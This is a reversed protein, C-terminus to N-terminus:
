VDETREKPCYRAVAYGVGFTDEHSLLESSYDRNRLVGALIAFSRIGCEGVEECLGDDYTLMRELDGKALARVVDAEFEPAAKSMGYPGDAKLRHSLDGSAIFVVRKSTEGLWRSIVEGFKAHTEHDFSSIAIRVIKPGVRLREGADQGEARAIFYLPVLSGHDSRRGPGQTETFSGASLGSAEALTRIEEIAAEDYHAEISPQATRFDKFSSVWNQGTSIYFHNRYMRNHPSVILITDPELSVIEEAIERYASLTEPVMEEQGQGVEPVVLPPHPVVYSCLLSM